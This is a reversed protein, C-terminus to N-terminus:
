SASRVVTFAILAAGLGISLWGARRVKAPETAPRQSPYHEWARREEFFTERGSEVYDLNRRAVRQARVIAYLGTGVMLAGMGFGWVPLGGNM